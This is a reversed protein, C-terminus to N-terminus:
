SYFIQTHAPLIIGNNCKIRASFIERQIDHEKRLLIMPLSKNNRMFTINFPIYFQKQGSRTEFDESGDDSESQHSESLNTMSVTVDRQDNFIYEHCLSAAIGGLIM